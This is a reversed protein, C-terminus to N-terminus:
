IGDQAFYVSHLICQAAIRSAVHSLEKVHKVIKGLTMGLSHNARLLYKLSLTANAGYRFRLYNIGSRAVSLDRTVENGERQVQGM